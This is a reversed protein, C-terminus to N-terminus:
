RNKQKIAALASKAEPSIILRGSIAARQALLEDWHETGEWFAAKLAQMAATSYGSLKNLYGELWSDMAPIDEFVEQFLGHNGAWEASQWDEPQIAMQLTAAKGLKREVAPGVVFPGIGVALESLKIASIKTAVCFDAAAALGVGGGVAKGQVRAVILKPCKRMTNIVRAFGMFFELGSDPHTIAILEDFSAGACFTRDGASQLLIVKILPDEGALTIQTELAKLLQGPLSNHAPHFFTLIGISGNRQLSVWGEKAEEAKM